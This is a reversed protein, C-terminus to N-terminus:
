YIDVQLIAVTSSYERWIGDRNLSELENKDKSYRIWDGCNGTFYVHEHNEGVIEYKSEDGYGDFTISIINKREM